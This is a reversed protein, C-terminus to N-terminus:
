SRMAFTTMICPSPPTLSLCRRTLSTRSWRSQLEGVVTVVVMVVVVVVVVVVVMMAVAVATLSLLKWMWFSVCVTAPVVVICLPPALVPTSLSPDSRRCRLALELFM